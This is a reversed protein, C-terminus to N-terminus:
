ELGVNARFLTLVNQMLGAVTELHAEKDEDPIALIIERIQLIVDMWIDIDGVVIRAM